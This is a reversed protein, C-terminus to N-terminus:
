IGLFLGLDNPGVVFSTSYSQAIWLKGVSVQLNELPASTPTYAKKRSSLWGGLFNRLNQWWISFNKLAKGGAKREM